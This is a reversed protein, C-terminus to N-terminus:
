AFDGELCDALEELLFPQRPRTVRAVRARAAAAAALRFHAPRGGLGDLFRPRYTAKRLATFREADQLAEIRIADQNHASLLYVAHLPVPQSAFRDGCPLGYKEMEPRLRRLGATDHALRTASDAWLKVQPYGPL